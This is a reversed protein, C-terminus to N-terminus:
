DLAYEALLGHSIAVFVYSTGSCTGSQNKGSTVECYTGEPLSTAFTATWEEDANNIAVFASSGRGFAIQQAAPSVWNTVPDSAATNHFGVMGAVDLFRHQCIFGEAGGTASCKGFDLIDHDTL